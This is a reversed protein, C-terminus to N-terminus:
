TNKDCFYCYIFLPFKPPSSHTYPMSQSTKMPTCKDGVWWITNKLYKSPNKKYALWVELHDFFLVFDCWVNWCFFITSDILIKWETVHGNIVYFLPIHLFETFLLRKLNFCDGRRLVVDGVKKMTSTLHDTQRWAGFWKSLNLEVLNLAQNGTCYERSVHMSAVRVKIGGLPEPVVAAQYLKLSLFRLRASVGHLFAAGENAGVESGGPVKREPLYRLLGQRM